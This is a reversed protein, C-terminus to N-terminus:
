ARAHGQDAALRYWWAAEADNQPVGDGDRYM